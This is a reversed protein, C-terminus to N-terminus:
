ECKTASSKDNLYGLGLILLLLNASPRSVKLWEGYAQVACLHAFEEPQEQLVFPKIGQPASPLATNV